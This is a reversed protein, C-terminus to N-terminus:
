LNYVVILDYLAHTWAACGFGRMVYIVNLALGFLFRFLFSSLTFTDAFDGVYHVGSFIVAAIIASLIYSSKKTKFFLQFIYFLGSVLIVRFFLEEYLGAGLSLAYLQLKSLQQLNGQLNMNLLAELFQSILLAIFVAYLFSEVILWFFYRRKLSPLSGRKRFIIIAGIVAALGFTATLGNIGFYAFFTQFWIDVSIRVMQEQGAQSLRILLEYLLFLPLALIYSYYIGSTQRFYTQAAYNKM